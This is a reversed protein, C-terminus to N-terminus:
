GGALAGFRDRYGAFAEDVEGATLGFEALGYRHPGHRHQPHGAAWQAIAAEVHRELRRDMDRYLRHVASAPDAVLESYAVDVVVGAPVKDRVAVARQMGM